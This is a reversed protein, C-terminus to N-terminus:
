NDIAKDTLTDPCVRQKKL